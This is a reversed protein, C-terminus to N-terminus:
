TSKSVAEGQQGITSKDVNKNGFIRGAEQDLDAAELVAYYKLMDLSEWGVMKCVAVPNFGLGLLRRAPTSSEQKGLRHKRDM